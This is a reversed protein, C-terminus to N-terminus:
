KARVARSTEISTPLFALGVVAALGALGFVPISAVLEPAFDCDVTTLEEPDAGQHLLREVLATFSYPEVTNAFDLLNLM